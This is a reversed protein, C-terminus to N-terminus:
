MAFGWWRTAVEAVLELKRRQDSESVESGAVFGTAPSLALDDGDMRKAAEDIWSMLDDINELASRTASVLGLVVLKGKPVFRLVDFDKGGGDMPLIFRDVPLARFLREADGQASTSQRVIADDPRVFHVAIRVNSPRSIGALAAGDLQLWADLTRDPAGDDFLVGYGPADLQIVDVGAAVLAEIEGKVIAARALARDFPEGATPRAAPVAVKIPRRSLSRLPAAESKALTSGDLKLAAHDARRFGGDTTVSLGVSRQMDAASKVAVTEAERLRDLDIEGRGYRQRADSLATPSILGGIHDARYTFENAM